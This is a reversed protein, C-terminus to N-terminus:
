IFGFSVPRGPVIVLSEQRQRALERGSGRRRQALPLGRLRVTPDFEGISVVVLTPAEAMMVASTSDMIVTSGSLLSITRRFYAISRLSFLERKRVQLSELPAHCVRTQPPTGATSHHWLTYLLELVM